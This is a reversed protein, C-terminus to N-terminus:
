SCLIRGADPRTQLTPHVTKVQPWLQGSQWSKREIRGEDTCPGLGAEAVRTPRRVKRGESVGATKLPLTEGELRKWVTRTVCKGPLFCSERKVGVVTWFLTHGQAQGQELFPDEVPCRHGPRPPGSCDGTQPPGCESSRTGSSQQPGSSTRHDRCM